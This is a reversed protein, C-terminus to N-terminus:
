DRDLLLLLRNLGRRAAAQEARNGDAGIPLLAFRNLQALFRVYRDASHTGRRTTGTSEARRLRERRANVSSARRLAIWAPGSMRHRARLRTHMNMIKCLKTTENVYSLILNNHSRHLARSSGLFVKIVNYLTFRSIFM